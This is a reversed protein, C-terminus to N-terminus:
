SRELKTPERLAFKCSHNNLIDRFTRAQQSSRELEIAGVNPEEVCDVGAQYADALGM